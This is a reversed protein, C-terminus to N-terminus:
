IAKPKYVSNTIIRDNEIVSIEPNNDVSTKKTENQKKLISLSLVLVCTLLSPCLSSSVSVSAPQLRQATLVSRSAPSSSVFQSIMVQILIPCKDSQSVWAGWYKNKITKLTKKNKLSLYITPLPPTSLSPSLSGSAPELSQATLLSGSLLSSGVFRLIMVQALTLRRVSHAM